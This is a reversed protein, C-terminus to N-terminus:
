SAGEVKADKKGGSKQELEYKLRESARYVKSQLYFSGSKEKSNVEFLYDFKKDVKDKSLGAAELDLIKCAEDLSIGGSRSNAAASASARVSASSAQRYAEAFAKGFVQSGTIVVQM